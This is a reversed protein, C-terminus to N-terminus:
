THGNTFSLPLCKTYVKSRRLRMALTAVERTLVRPECRSPYVKNACNTQRKKPGSAAWPGGTPSRLPWMLMITALHLKSAPHIYSLKHDVCTKTKNILYHSRKMEWPVCIIIHHAVKPRSAQLNSSIDQGQFISAPSISFYNFFFCVTFLIQVIGTLIQTM